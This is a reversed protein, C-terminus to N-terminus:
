GLVKTPFLQHLQIFLRFHLRHLPIIGPGNRTPGRSQLHDQGVCLGSNECVTTQKHPLGFDVIGPSPGCLYVGAQGEPSCTLNHQLCEGKGNKNSGQASIKDLVALLHLVKEPQFTLLYLDVLLFCVAQAFKEEFPELFQYLKEGISIAESYQRMHYHIIAQNYYLLCNEVDDLGDADEASTHLRNRIAMLTQKLTGTTTQGTRFFEAVAKNRVMKYDGKSLEQLAELYKLSEVYRGAAFAEYASAAMEKEQDTM